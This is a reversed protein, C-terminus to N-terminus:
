KMYIVNEQKSSKAIAQFCKVCIFEKTYLLQQPSSSYWELRCFEIKVSLM